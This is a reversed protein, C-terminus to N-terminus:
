RLGHKTIEKLTANTERPKVGMEVYKQPSKGKHNKTTTAGSELLM